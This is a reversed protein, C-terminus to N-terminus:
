EQRVSHLLRSKDYDAGVIPNCLIRNGVDEEGVAPPFAQEDLRHREAELTKGGGKL